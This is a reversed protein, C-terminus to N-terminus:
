TSRRSASSRAPFIPNTPDQASIGLGNAVGNAAGSLLHANDIVPNVTNFSNIVAVRQGNRVGGVQTFFEPAFRGGTFDKEASLSREALDLPLYEFFRGFNYFIKTNGKGSPDFTVGLRPAWQDTFSYAVRKGTSGPNGIIREQEGRIGMIATVHKNIRWTDQAYYANYNNYTSFIPAGFEGRNQRLSVREWGVGFGIDGLDGPIFKLPCLTCSAGQLRLEWQANLPQGAASASIPLTGDANNSPVTYHPGSRDRNGSYYGRQFQYGIALTHTGWLSAQKQLDLTTRYTKGNTPEVFGRGISTFSQRQTPQTTQTRDNIANFNDYGTENFHNVGQSFSASVTYPSASKGFAGNYRVALNRSGYNLVSQATTNDINLTFFSSKNTQSPDGFLSFTLSHNANINFDVKGAYNYTRVRAAHEHLATFLGSTSSGQQITRNVSPNFSGFFFLKNKVIPGSIDVGADYSEPHIIEGGKGARLDDAQKRTREFFRPQAYTYLAGHM